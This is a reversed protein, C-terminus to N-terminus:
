YHERAMTVIHGTKVDLAKITVRQASGMRSISGTIVMNAGLMNGVSVASADSVDGSLHFHQESRISDLAQRDVMTFLGSDVLQYELEEMVFSATEKSEASISLVALTTQPPLKHILTKCVRMLAEELRSTDEPMRVPNRSPGPGYDVVDGTASIKQVDLIVPSIFWLYAWLVNWWSFSGSIIINQIDINGSYRRQALAKLEAYAKRKIAQENVIHLVNTATWTANVSGIIRVEQQEQATMIRDELSVCSDMLGMLSLLVTLMFFPLKKM